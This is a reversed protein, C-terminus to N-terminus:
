ASRTFPSLHATLPSRHRHLPLTITFAATFPSPSPSPPPPPPPREKVYCSPLCCDGCVQTYHHPGSTLPSPSLHPNRHSLTSTFAATTPSPSPECDGCVMRLRAPEAGGDRQAKPQHHLARQTLGGNSAGARNANASPQPMTLGAVHVRRSTAAPAKTCAGHPGRAAESTQSLAYCASLSYTLPLFNTIRPLWRVIM